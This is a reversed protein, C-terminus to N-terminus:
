AINDMEKELLEGRLELSVPFALLIIAMERILVV